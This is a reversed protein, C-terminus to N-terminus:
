GLWPPPSRMRVWSPVPRITRVTTVRHGEACPDESERVGQRREVHGALPDRRRQGGKALIVNPLSRTNM